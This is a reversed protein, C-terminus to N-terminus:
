KDTRTGMSVVYQTGKCVSQRIEDRLFGGESTAYSVLADYDRLDCARRIAVEKEAVRAAALDHPPDMPPTTEKSMKESAMDLDMDVDTLGGTEIDIEANSEPWRQIDPWEAM